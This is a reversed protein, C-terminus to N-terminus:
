LVHQRKQLQNGLASSAASLAVQEKCIAGWAYIIYASILIGGVPDVWWGKSWWSAVAGTLIATLSSLIDNRHDEALAMQM